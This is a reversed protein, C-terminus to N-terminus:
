WSQLSRKSFSLQENSYSQRTLLTTTCVRKKFHRAERPISKGHLYLVPVMSKLIDFMEYEGSLPRSSLTTYIYEQEAIDAHM